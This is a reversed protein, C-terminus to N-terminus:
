LEKWVPLGGCAPVSDVGGASGSVVTALRVSLGAYRSLGWRSYFASSSADVISFRGADGSDSVLSHNRM